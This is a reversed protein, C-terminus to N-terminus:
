PCTWRRAGPPEKAFYLGITAQVRGDQKWPRLHLQVVVDSNKQLITAIGQPDEHAVTGATWMTLMGPLAFGFGGGCPHGEGSLKEIRRGARHPDQVVIAHHVVGSTGPRLEVARM